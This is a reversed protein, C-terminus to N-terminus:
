DTGTDKDFTYLTMGNKATVHWRGACGHQGHCARWAIMAFKYMSKEKLEPPADPKMGPACM